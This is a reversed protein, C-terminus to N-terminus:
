LALRGVIPRLRQWSIRIYTRSVRPPLHGLLLDIDARAVGLEDLHTAASHRLPHPGGPGCARRVAASYTDLRSWRPECRSLWSRALVSFVIRRAEGSRRATKHELLRFVNDECWDGEGRVMRVVEGPRALTLYNLALWPRVPEEAGHIMTKVANVSLSKDQTPGLPLAKCGRLNVPPILELDMAWTLMAKAAIMDHNVTKPAYGHALMDQKIAQLAGVRVTDAPAPGYAHLFRKLSRRYYDGLADGGELTKALVFREAVDIVHLRPRRGSETAQQCTARWAAWDSLSEAYATQAESRKRGFYRRRGAWKTFWRGDPLKRLTPTKVNM